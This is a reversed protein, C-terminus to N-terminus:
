TDGNIRIPVAQKHVIRVMEERMQRPSAQQSLAALPQKLTMGAFINRITQDCPGGQQTPTPNQPSIAFSGDDIGVEFQDLHGPGSGGIVSGDDITVSGLLCMPDQPNCTFEGDLGTPDTFNV